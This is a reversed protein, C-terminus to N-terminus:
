DRDQRGVPTYLAEWAHSRAIRRQHREEKSQEFIRRSIERAKQPPLNFDRLQQEVLRLIRDCKKRQALTPEKFMLM